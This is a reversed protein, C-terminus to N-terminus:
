VRGTFVAAGTAEPLVATPEITDEVVPVQVPLGAGVKV